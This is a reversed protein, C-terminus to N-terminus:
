LHKGSCKQVFLTMSYGIDVLPLNGYIVNHRYTQLIENDVFMDIDEHM